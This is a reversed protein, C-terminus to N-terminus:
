LILERHASRPRNEDMSVSMTSSPEIALRSRGIVLMDEWVGIEIGTSPTRKLLRALGRTRCKYQNPWPSGTAPMAVIQGDCDFAVVAGNFYVSFAAADNAAEGTLMLRKVAVRFWDAEVHCHPRKAYLRMERRGPLHHVLSRGLELWPTPKLPVFDRGVNYAILAVGQEFSELELSLSFEVM